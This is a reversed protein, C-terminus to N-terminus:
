PFYRYIDRRHLCRVFEVEDGEVTIGLRYDGIRIRYFGRFGTIQRLNPVDQLNEAAEVQEIAERIRRRLTEDRLRSLDREFSRRFATRM